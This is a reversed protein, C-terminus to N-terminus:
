DTHHSSDEDVGPAGPDTGSWSTLFASTHRHAAEVLEASRRFDFSSMDAPTVQPLCVVRYRHALEDVAHARQSRLMVSVTHILSPVLRDPPRDTTHAPNADLVLVSAAGFAIAQRIPVNASVGGDVYHRGDIEVRPFVGPIAASALLAPGIAGTCLLAPEGTSLDTAVAAFPVTLGEFTEQEVHQGILGALLDPRCLSARSRVLTAVATLAGGGFITRRDIRRWVDDLRDAADDPHAAVVVGNLAGVSAGVVLDPVVGAEALARLMGVQTAGYAGGGSLAFALPRPWGAFPDSRRTGPATM